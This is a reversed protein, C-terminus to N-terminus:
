LYTFTTRTVEADDSLESPHLNYLLGLHQILSAKNHVDPTSGEFDKNALSGLLACKVDTIQVKEGVDDRLEGPINAWDAGVKEVIRLTVIEGECYGKQNGCLRRGPRFITTVLRAQVLPMYIKRFSIEDRRTTTPPM